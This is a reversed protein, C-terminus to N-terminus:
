YKSGIVKQCIISQMRCVFVLSFATSHCFFRVIRDFIQYTDFNVAADRPGSQSLVARTCYTHMGVDALKTEAV